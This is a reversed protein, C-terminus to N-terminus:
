KAEDGLLPDDAASGVPAGKPPWDSLRFPTARCFRAPRYPAVITDTIDDICMISNHFLELAEGRIGLQIARRELKGGRPSHDPDWQLRVPVGPPCGRQKKKTTPWSLALIEDFAAIPLTITKGITKPHAVVYDRVIYAADSTLIKGISRKQEVVQLQQELRAQLDVRKVEDPPQSMGLADHGDPRTFQATIAQHVGIHAMWFM